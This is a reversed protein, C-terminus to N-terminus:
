TGLLQLLAKSKQEMRRAAATSKEHDYGFLHLIGHILLESLRKEFTIGAAEAERQCTEVSIVVDGLLHPSVDSFEGKGHLRAFETIHAGMQQPIHDYGDLGALALGLGGADPKFSAKGFQENVANQMQETIVVFFRRGLFRAHVAFCLGQKRM